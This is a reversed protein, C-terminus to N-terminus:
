LKAAKSYFSYSCLYFPVFILSETMDTQIHPLTCCPLLGTRQKYKCNMPFLAFDYCKRNVRVILQSNEDLKESKHLNIIQLSRQTSPNWYSSTTHHATMRM